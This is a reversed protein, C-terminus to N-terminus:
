ETRPTTVATFEIPTGTSSTSLTVSDRTLNTVAYELVASFPSEVTLTMMTLGQNYTFTGEQPPVPAGACINTGDEYSFTGDTNDVNLTNDWYCPDGAMEVGNLKLSHVYWTKAGYGFARFERNIGVTITQETTDSGGDGTAILQITYTGEDLVEFMPEKETSTVDGPTVTWKYTTAKTSSNVLHITDGEVVSTSHFSFAAVPKDATPDTVEDDGCASFLAASLLMAPIAFRTVNRFKM